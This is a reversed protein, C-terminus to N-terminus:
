VEVRNRGLSKARCLKKDAGGLAEAGSTSSAADQLGISVTVSLRPDIRTWDFEELARRLREALVAAAGVNTEPFAVVFEEGGYRAIVDVERLNAELIASVRILVKDGLAHSFEDNISKFSDIDLIAVSLAHGYRKAQAILAGCQENFARRNLLGTLGDRRSLETMERAHTDSREQSMEVEHHADALQESLSATMDRIPRALRNGLFLGLPIVLVAALLLSFLWSGVITALSMGFLALTLKTRLSRM